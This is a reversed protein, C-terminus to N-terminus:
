VVGGAHEFRLSKAFLLHAKADSSTVYGMKAMTRREWSDPDVFSIVALCGLARAEAELREYLGKVAALKDRLLATAPNTTTWEIVGIRGAHAYLFSVALEEGENHAIWGDPLIEAPTPMVGHGAWWRCLTPYDAEPSYRRFQIM